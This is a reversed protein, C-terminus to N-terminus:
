YVRLELFDSLVEIQDMSRVLADRLDLSDSIVRSGQYENILLFLFHVLVVSCGKIKSLKENIVNLCGKIVEVFQM